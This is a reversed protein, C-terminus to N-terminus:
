ADVLGDIRSGRRSSSSFLTSEGRISRITDKSSSNSLGPVLDLRHYSLYSKALMSHSCFFESTDTLARV